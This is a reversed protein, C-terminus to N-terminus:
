LCPILPGRHNLIKLNAALQCRLLRVEESTSRKNANEDFSKRFELMVEAHKKKAILYPMIATIIPTIKTKSLIWEHRQKFKDTAKRTYRLGGFNNVLWDILESCTNVVYVRADYHIFGNKTTRNGGIHFTGEGDIIAALYALQAVTWM